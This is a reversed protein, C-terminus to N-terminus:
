QIFLKQTISEKTSTNMARVVYIGKSLKQKIPLSTASSASIYNTQIIQGNIGYLAVQWSSAGSSPLQVSLYTGSPDPIFAIESAKTTWNVSRIASVSVKNDKTVQKIRFFLDTAPSPLDYKFQYNGIDNVSVGNAPLIVATTFNIGDTSIMVEYSKSKSENSTNWKILASLPGATQAMLRISNSALASASCYVYSINFKIIDTTSSTYAVGATTINDADTVYHFQVNGVGMFDATNNLSENVLTDNTIVAVPGIAIFDPGSGLVGNSGALNYNGYVPSPYEGEILDMLAASSINDYRLFRTKTFPKALAQENELTFSYQISVVSQIRIQMLTGLSPDFKPFTFDYPAIGTGVVTSDYTLVTSTFGGTCQAQTPGAHICCIMVVAVLCNQIKMPNPNTRGKYSL